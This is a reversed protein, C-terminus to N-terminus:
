LKEIICEQFIDLLGVVELEFKLGFNNIRIMLDIKEDVFNSLEECISSLFPFNLLHKKIFQKIGILIESNPTPDRNFLSKSLWSLQEFTALKVDINGSLLFTVLSIFGSMSEELNLIKAFLSTFKIWHVFTGRVKFDDTLSKNSKIDALGNKIDISIDLNDDVPSRLHDEFNDLTKNADDFKWHNMDVWAGLFLKEKLIQSSIGFSDKLCPGDYASEIFWNLLRKLNESAHECIDRSFNNKSSLSIAIWTERMSFSLASNAEFLIQERKASKGIALRLKMKSEEFDHGVQLDITKTCISKDIAFKGFSINNFIDGCSDNLEFYKSFNKTLKQISIAQHRGKKWWYVFDWFSVRGKEQCLFDEFKFLDLSENTNIRNIAITVEELDISGVKNKDVQRFAEKLDILLAQDANFVSKMWEEISCLAKIGTLKIIEESDSNSLDNEYIISRSWSTAFYEGVLMAEALEDLSNVVLAVCDVGNPTNKYNQTNVYITNFKLCISKENFLLDLIIEPKRSSEKITHKSWIISNYSHSPDSCSYLPSKTTESTSEGVENEEFFYLKSSSFQSEESKNKESQQSELIERLANFKDIQTRTKVFSKEPTEADIIENFNMHNIQQSITRDIVASENKSEECSFLTKQKKIPDSVNHSQEILKCLKKKDRKSTGCGM